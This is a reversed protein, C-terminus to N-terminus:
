RVQSFKSHSVMGATAEEGKSEGATLVINSVVTFAAL